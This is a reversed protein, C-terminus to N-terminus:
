WRQTVYYVCSLSLTLGNAGYAIRTGDSFTKM